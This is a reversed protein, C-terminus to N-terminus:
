YNYIQRNPRFNSNCCYHVASRFKSTRYPIVTRIHIIYDNTLFMTVCVSWWNLEEGFKRAVHM